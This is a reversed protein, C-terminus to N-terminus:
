SAGRREAQMLERGVDMWAAMIERGEPPQLVAERAEALLMRLNKLISTAKSRGEHDVFIEVTKNPPDMNTGSEGLDPKGSPKTRQLDPSSPSTRAENSPNLLLNHYVPLGGADKNLSTEDATDNRSGPPKPQEEVGMDNHLATTIAEVEQVPQETTTDGSTTQVAQWGVDFRSQDSNYLASSSAGCADHVSDSEVHAPCAPEPVMSTRQVEDSCNISMEPEYDAVADRVIKRPRGKKRIVTRKGVRFQGRTISTHTDLCQDDVGDAEAQINPSSVVICELMEEEETRHIEKQDGIEVLGSLRPSCRRKTSPEPSMSLWKRKTSETQGRTELPSSVKSSEAAQSLAREMDNAIQASVEDDSNVSINHYNSEIAEAFNYPPFVSGPSKLDTIIDSPMAPGNQEMRKQAPSPVRPNTADKGDPNWQHKDVNKFNPSTHVDEILADHLTFEHKELAKTNTRSKELAAFHAFGGSEGEEMAANEHEMDTTALINSVRDLLDQPTSVLKNEKTGHSALLPPSSPPGDEYFIRSSRKASSSPTPSSGLFTNSIDSPAPLTPSVIEEVLNRNTTDRNAGLYLRPLNTVSERPKPRSSSRIDPFMAAAEQHQRDKIERQRATLFQSEMAETCSPSSEIAAFQIQSDDHRFRAMSAAKMPGRRPSPTSTRQVVNRRSEQHIETAVGHQELSRSTREEVFEQGCDNGAQLDQESLEPTEVFNFPTSNYQKSDIPASNLTWHSTVYKSVSM